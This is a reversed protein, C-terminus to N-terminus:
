TQKQGLGRPPLMRFLPPASILLTGEAGTAPLQCKLSPMIQTEDGCEADM